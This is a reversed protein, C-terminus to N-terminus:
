GPIVISDTTQSDLTSNGCEVRLGVKVRCALCRELGGPCFVTSIRLVSCVFYSLRMKRCKNWSFRLQGQPHCQIKHPGGTRLPWRYDVKLERKCESFIM